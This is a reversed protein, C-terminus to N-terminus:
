LLDLIRIVSKQANISAGKVDWKRRDRIGAYNSIGRIEIMPIDYMTCIHAIAAGEMNECIARFMRERKLAVEETGSCSSVTLFRGKKIRFENHGTEKLRKPIKADVPFENFLDKGKRTLLPIGIKKLDYWGNSIIGEDGYIEM